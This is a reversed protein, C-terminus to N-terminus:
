IILVNHRWWTTNKFSRYVYKRHNRALYVNQEL